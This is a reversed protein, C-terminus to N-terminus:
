RHAVGGDQEDGTGVALAHDRGDGIEDETVAAVNKEIVLMSVFGGIEEEGPDLEVGAVKIEINRLEGLAECGDGALELHVPAEGM